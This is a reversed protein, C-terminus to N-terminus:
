RRVANLMAGSKSAETQSGPSTMALNKWAPHICVTGFIESSKTGNIPEGASEIIDAACTGAADDGSREM